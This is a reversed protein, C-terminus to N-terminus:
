GAEAGRADLASRQEDRGAERHPQDVQEVADSHAAVALAVVFVACAGVEGLMAPPGVFIPRGAASRRLVRLNLAIVSPTACSAAWARAAPRTPISVSNM